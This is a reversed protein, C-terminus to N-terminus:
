LTLIATAISFYVTIGVIDALSTILPASSTAPDIKLRDLIFPLLMGILSGFIVVAAMGLAVVLGVESGGRYVGIGAVALAMTLGLALSVSLEKALMRGWDGARVDGTALARVMLTSAQAGANGGSAIVLPLFFVLAIVAEITAEYHAIAAGGFLNMFVLLVLWGIRKRYLLYPSADRLSPQLTGVSGMKHFDETVEEEAVDMVDDLTLTGLLMGDGDVVPLASLDYHQVLDVAKERDEMAEISTFQHDMIEAVQQEPEALVFRRLALTDLLKGHPDTVYIVSITEAQQHRSRIHALSRSVSWDPRVAIYNPTMLRGVSEEPFGLLTQTKRREQPPLMELMRRLMEAPLDALLATRDDPEMGKLLDLIERETLDKIIEDQCDSGLYSFVETSEAKPLLKLLLLRHTPSIEPLLKAIDQVPLQHLFDRARAWDREELIAELDTTHDIPEM